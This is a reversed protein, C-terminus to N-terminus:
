LSSAAAFRAGGSAEDRLLPMSLQANEDPVRKAM